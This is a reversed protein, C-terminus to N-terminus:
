RENEKLGEKDRKGEPWWSVWVSDRFGDYCGPKRNM